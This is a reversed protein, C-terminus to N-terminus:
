ETGPCVPAPNMLEGQRSEDARLLLQSTRNEESPGVASSRGARAAVLAVPRGNLPIIEDHPLAEFSKFVRHNKM